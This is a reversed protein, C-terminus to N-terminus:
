VRELVWFHSLGFIRLPTKELTQLLFRLIKGPTPFRAIINDYAGFVITASLLRLPLGRMLEELDRRQYIRVHPALRNRWRRPLYNVLPINGFHYKGRWYIGHTEFPYGRNPVFLLLRGGKKLVRAMEQMALRDDGVHELVEHSLILDFSADPFPLHEGAACLVELERRHAVVARDWDIELGVAKRALPVFKELYLGVGCGNELIMGHVHEAASKLIMQWRREQGARWIYSPEGCRASKEATPPELASAM